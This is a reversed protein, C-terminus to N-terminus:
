PTTARDLRKRFGSDRHEAWQAVFRQHMEVRERRLRVLLREIGLREDDRRTEQLERAFAKAPARGRRRPEAEVRRLLARTTEDSESDLRNLHEQLLPVQVDRDHIDGLLEQIDKIEDLMAAARPVAGAFIEILYRLRKFAIRMDHLERVRAPDAIHEEFSFVEDIRVRLIRAANPALRGDPTIGSIPRPKM